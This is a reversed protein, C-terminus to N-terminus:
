PRYTVYLLVPLFISHGAPAPVRAYVTIVGAAPISTTLNEGSSLIVNALDVDYQSATTYKIGYQGAPLGHISFTAGVGAKLVVVYGGGVNIFALPDLNANNSAADIRLAGRRIFKYYQRTYRTMNTIHIVPNGPDTDDIAYLASSTAPDGPGGVAGQEWASNRGMKLDKHLTQYGNSSSWWELMSTDLNNQVARNAIAQLNADSVGGYRHYSYEELYSLAGPVLIMADFYTIANGMNTNSPAVFHPTFGNAQLRSATAVIAQGLLTGNWQSVNDPELLVEWTDPVFGYKSQLHLYTALVFEAYEDPNNHIYTHGAGIQGTFAVYCLNIHLSEGNSQVRQRLPLIIKEVNDDLESFYYGNWNITNPDANDNVTAYRLSRWTTYDIVGNQYDTWNDHDYEAGSRVELRVRNIGAENVALDFLADKYNPFAPTDQGSYAVAEWGSMTQYTIAPNLTIDNAAPSRVPPAPAVGYSAGLLTQILVWCIAIQLKM